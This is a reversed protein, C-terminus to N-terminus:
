KQPKILSCNLFQGLITTSGSTLSQRRFQGRAPLESARLSEAACDLEVEPLEVVESFFRVGAPHAIQKLCGYAPCLEENMKLISHFQAVM